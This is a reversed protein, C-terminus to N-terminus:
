DTYIASESFIYKKDWHTSTSIYHQLIKIKMYRSTFSLVFRQMYCPRPHKTETSFLIGRRYSAYNNIETGQNTGM